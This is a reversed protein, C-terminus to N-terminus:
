NWGRIAKKLIVMYMRAYVAAYMGANLLRPYRAAYHKRYFRIMSRHFDQVSRSKRFRVSYAHHHVISAEAVYAIEWGLAKARLFWDVDDCYLFYGEDFLGVRELAARRLMMCCSASADVFHTRSPDHYSADYRALRRSEPFIKSLLLARSIADWPDPMRRKASLQPSGDTNFIRPGACAVEPHADLYDLLARFCGPRVRTDPNLLCVYDGSSAQIGINNGRSSGLNAGTPIARILGGWKQVARELSGDSSANDPVIVEFSGTIEDAFVSDLCEALFVGANHNLIVISLKM